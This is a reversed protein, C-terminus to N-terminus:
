AARSPIFCLLMLASFVLQDYDGGGDWFDEDEFGFDEAVVSAEEEFTKVGFGELLGRAELAFENLIIVGFGRLVDQTAQVVLDPLLLALQHPDHLAFDEINRNVQSFARFGEPLPDAMSETCFVLLLEPNRFAKGVTEDDETFGCFEEVFRSIVVGRFM